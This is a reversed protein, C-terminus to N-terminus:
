RLAAATVARQWARTAGLCPEVAEIPRDFRRRGKRAPKGNLKLPRCQVVAPLGGFIVEGWKRSRWRGSPQSAIASCDCGVEQQAVKRVASFRNCQLRVGSGAAGGEPRSLLSQVAIAGWKRSRWRGSPQFTNASSVAGWKRSRWRGSPQFTNASSVAGWKRSRWRGSPQSAIASCDCGVEQQAVKRVAPDSPVVMLM